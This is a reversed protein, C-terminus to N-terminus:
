RGALGEIRRQKRQGVLEDRRARATRAADARGARTYADALAAAGDATPQLQEAGELAAIAEDHREDALMVAALQRRADADEPALAIIEQLMAIAEGPRGGAVADAADRKMGAVKFRLQGLAFADDQERRVRELELAAESRQGLRVLASALAYRAETAAADLSLARRFAAVAEPLQELRVHVHGIGAHARANKPDLWVAATFEALAEEHRGQLFFVDGNLRHADAHNPNVDIRRGYAAVADDFAAQNVLVRGLAAYLADQGIIAGARDAHRL